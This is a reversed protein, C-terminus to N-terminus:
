TGKVSTNVLETVMVNSTGAVETVVFIYIVIALCIPIGIFRHLIYHTSDFHCRLTDLKVMLMQFPTRTGTSTPYKDRLTYMDGFDSLRSQSSQFQEEMSGLPQWKM